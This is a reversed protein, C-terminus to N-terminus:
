SLCPAAFGTHFLGPDTGEADLKARTEVAGFSCRWGSLSVIATGGPRCRHNDVDRAEHRDGLPQARAEAGSAAAKDGVAAHDGGGCVHRRRM